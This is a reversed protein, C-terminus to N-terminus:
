VVSKRDTQFNLLAELRGQSIEPQYPTYQTYWGPNELINRQIVAPTVCSYYGLGIYSRYVQNQAAIAAIKELAATESLAADVAMPADLRIGAPVAAAMLAAVSEFGLVKLMTDVDQDTPGLHRDAFRDSELATMWGSASQAAAPKPPKGSSRTEASHTTSSIAEAPSTTPEYSM